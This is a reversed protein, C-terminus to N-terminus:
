GKEQSVPVWFILIVIYRLARAARKQKSSRTLRGASGLAGVVKPQPGGCFKRGGGELPAGGVGPFPIEAEGAEPECGGGM